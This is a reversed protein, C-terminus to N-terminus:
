QAHSDVVRSEEALATAHNPAFDVRWAVSSGDTGFQGTRIRAIRYDPLALMALCAGDFLAGHEGFEFDLNDFGSRRRAWPLARATEPVVHLFFRQQVDAPACPERAYHLMGGRLYVDYGEAGQREGGGGPDRRLSHFADRLRDVDLQFVARWSAAGGAPHTQSAHAAAVPWAPPLPVSMVCVEDVVTGVEHFFFGRRESHRARGWPATGGLPALRLEFLGSTDALSCPAKFYALEARSDVRVVHLDWGTRAVPTLMRLRRREERRAERMAALVVGADAGARYLFVSRHEPTLLAPTEYREFALVFDAAGIATGDVVDSRGAYRVFSGALYFNVFRREDVFRNFTNKLKSVWVSKGRVTGAVTEFEAMEAREARARGVDGQRLGLGVSSAAFVMAAGAACIAPAPRWLRNALLLLAAFLCLPVGAHFMTEYQHAPWILPEPVLLMWGFGALAVAAPPARPGRFVALGALAGLTAVVGTWFLLLGESDRWALEDFDAGGSLAFPLCAAGVRHFHWRLLTLVQRQPVDERLGTRRFMSRASPLETLARQGGYAAHEHALNWGLVGTGFALALVGLLVARGRLAGAAAAGLRGVATAADARRWVSAAERVAVFALYPLLLGYVHWGILLAVCVRAALEWFRRRGGELEFLVMGHFVLMLAFLDPSMENSVADSYHLLHYSSFALLTAGLAVARGVLRALGLYAFLAAASFFGLMLVRAAVLQASADDPFPAIVLQTLVSVGIPFRNYPVYRVSGDVARWKRLFQFGPRESVNRALTMNKATNQDHHLHSYFFGREGVFIWLASM